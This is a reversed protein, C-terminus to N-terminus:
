QMKHMSSCSNPLDIKGKRHDLKKQLQEILLEMNDICYKQKSLGVKISDLNDEFKEMCMQLYKPAGFITSFKDFNFNYNFILFSLHLDVYCISILIIHLQFNKLTQQQLTPKKLGLIEHHHLYYYAGIISKLANPPSTKYIDHLNFSQLNYSRLNNQINLFISRKQLIKLFAYPLVLILIKLTKDISLQLKIWIPSLKKLADKLLKVPTINIM